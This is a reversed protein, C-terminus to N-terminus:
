YTNKFVAKRKELFASVGEQKEESNFSEKAVYAEISLGNKVIMDRSANVAKKANRLALPGNKAIKKALIMAEEMLNEQEVVKQVLGISLAENADVM